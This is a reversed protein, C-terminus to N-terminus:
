IIPSKNMYSNSKYVFVFRFKFISLTLEIRDGVPLLVERLLNVDGQHERKVNKKEKKKKCTFVLFPLQYIVFFPPINQFVNAM